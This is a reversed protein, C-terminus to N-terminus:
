NEDTWTFIGENNQLKQVKTEDYGTISKLYTEIISAIDTKKALKTVDGDVYNYLDDVLLVYDAPYFIKCGQPIEVFEEDTDKWAMTGYDDVEINESFPTGQEETPTALEYNLMVGSMASIFTELTAYSTDRIRVNGSDYICIAKDDSTGITMSSVKTYGKTNIQMADVKCDIIDNTRFFPHEGTELSWNLSGLDVSGVNRTIVGDPAKTDRVSGASRLVETGTDYVKKVFPQYEGDREGDWSLNICINNNTNSVHFRIYKANASVTFKRNVVTPQSLYNQDKDYECIRIGTTNDSQFYYEANSIVRIYNKSRILTNDAYNIGNNSIGGSESVEDWQNFGITELYRGNSTELSGANYTRDTNDYNDWTEPHDLLDQPILDNSGFWQTLDICVFDKISFTDNANGLSRTPIYIYTNSEATIIDGYLKYSTTLTKQTGNIGGVITQILLDNISAKASFLVLYKHGVVCVKFTTGFGNDWSVGAQIITYTMEGNNFSTTGKSVNVSGWNSSNIDQSQQNVVVSNGQKELQKAIPSTPTESTNNNTGTGQFVFPDEQTSGSDESVTELSKSSIAKSVVVTGNELDEKLADVYEKSAIQKMRYLALGSTQTYQPKWMTLDGFIFISNQPKNQVYVPLFKSGSMFEMYDIAQQETLIQGNYKIQYCVYDGITTYFATYNNSVRVGNINYLANLVITTTAQETPVDHEIMATRMVQFVKRENYYAM